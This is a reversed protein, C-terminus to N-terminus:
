FLYKMIVRICVISNYSPKYRFKIPINLLDDRDSDSMIWSDLEDISLSCSQDAGMEFAKIGCSACAFLRAEINWSQQFEDVIRSMDSETVNHTIDNILNAIYQPPPTTSDLRAAEQWNDILTSTDSFRGLGTNTVLTMLAAVINTEANEMQEGSPSYKM